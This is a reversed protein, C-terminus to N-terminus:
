QRLRLAGDGILWIHLTSGARGGSVSDSLVTYPSRLVTGSGDDSRHETMYHVHVHEHLVRKVVSFLSDLM